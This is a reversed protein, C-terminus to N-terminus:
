ESARLVRRVGWAFAMLVQVPVGPSALREVEPEEKVEVLAEPQGRNWVHRVV